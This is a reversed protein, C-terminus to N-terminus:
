YQAGCQPCVCNDLTVSLETRCSLCIPKPSALSPNIQGLKICKVFVQWGNGNDYDANLDDALLGALARLGEDHFGRRADNIKNSEENGRHLSDLTVAAIRHEFYTRAQIEVMGLNELKFQYFSVPDDLVHVSPVYKMLESMLSPYKKLNGTTESLFLTGGP